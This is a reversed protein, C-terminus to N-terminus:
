HWGAEASHVVLVVAADLCAARRSLKRHWVADARIGSARSRAACRADRTATDLAALLESAVTPDDLSGVSPEVAEAAQGHAVFASVVDVLGERGESCAEDGQVLDRPETLRELGLIAGVLRLKAFRVPDKIAAIFTLGVVAGVGPVTMLRRCVAHERAIELVMRNLRDISLLMAVHAQFLVDVIAAVRPLDATLERVRQSFTRLKAM